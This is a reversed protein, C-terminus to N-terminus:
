LMACILGVSFICMVLNQPCLFDSQMKHVREQPYAVAALCLEVLSISLILCLSSFSIMKSKTMLDKVEAAITENITTLLEYKGDKSGSINSEGMEGFLDAAAWHKGPYLFRSLFNFILSREIHYTKITVPLM